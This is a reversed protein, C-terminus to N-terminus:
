IMTPKRPATGVKEKQESEYLNRACILADRDEPGFAKELIALARKFLPKAKAYDGMAVYLTGFNNLYPATEPHSPGRAKELMEVARIYLPEAKIFDGKKQYLDAMEGLCHANRFYKPGNAKEFIELAQQLFTEAEAYKGLGTNVVGLREFTRARGVHTPGWDKQREMAKILIAEAKEYDKAMEYSEALEGMTELTHPNRQGYIQERISVARLYLPEAKPFERLWTYCLALNALCTATGEHREGYTQEAYALTQKALDVAEAYRHLEVLQPVRWTPDAELSVAAEIGFSAFKPAAVVFLIVIKFASKAASRRPWHKVMHLKMTDPFHLNPIDLSSHLALPNIGFHLKLLANGPHRKIAALRVLFPDDRSEIKSGVRIEHQGGLM